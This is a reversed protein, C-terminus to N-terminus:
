LVPNEWRRYRLPTFANSSVYASNSRKLCPRQAIFDSIVVADADQWAPDALKESLATLCAALDTGGRFRQGLFRIAQELGGYATLEYDVQGTSFLSIFCRRNDALAIRMLALCFGKACAENFGGMSGSTDVCVIMPGRPQEDHQESSATQLIRRTQWADGQLRYTLLRKELM